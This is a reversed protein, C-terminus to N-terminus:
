RVYTIKEFEDRTPPEYSRAMSDIVHAPIMKGTEKERQKLRNKLQDYPILFVVAERTYHKPLMQLKARRSKKNMNTQDFIINKGNKIANEIDRYMQANVEKFDFKQFAQNYDLGKEKGWKELIDDTSAITWQSPDEKALFNRIWTSKGSGPLGILMIGRRPKEIEILKM